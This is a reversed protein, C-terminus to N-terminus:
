LAGKACVLSANLANVAVRRTEVTTGTRRRAVTAIRRQQIGDNTTDTTSDQQENDNRHARVVIPPRTAACAYCLALVNLQMVIDLAVPEHWVGVQLKLLLQGVSRKPLDPAGVPVSASNGDLLEAQYPKIIIANNNNNNSNGILKKTTPPRRPHDM